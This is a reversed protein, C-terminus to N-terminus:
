EDGEDDDSLLWAAAEAGSGFRRAKGEAIEQLAVVENRQWELTWYYGQNHPVFLPASRPRQPESYATPFSPLTVSSPTEETSEASILITTTM